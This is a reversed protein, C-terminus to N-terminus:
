TTKALSKLERKEKKRDYTKKNKHAQTPKLKIPGRSIVLIKGSGRKKGRGQFTSASFALDLCFFTICQWLSMYDSSVKIKM